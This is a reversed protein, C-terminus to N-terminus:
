TQPVDRGSRLVKGDGLSLEFMPAFLLDEGSNNVAKYTMYMYSRAGSDRVQVSAVRLPGAEVELQWRRPVPDPEPAIAMMPALAAVAVPLATLFAFRGSSNCVASRM